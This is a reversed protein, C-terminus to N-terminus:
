RENIDLLFISTESVDFLGGVDVSKIHLKFFVREEFNLAFDGYDDVAIAVSIQGTAPHVVFINIGLKTCDQSNAIFCKYQAIISYSPIGFAGNDVDTSVGM